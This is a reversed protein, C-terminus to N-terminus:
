KKLGQSHMLWKVWGCLNHEVNYPYKLYGKLEKDELLNMQNREDNFLDLRAFKAYTGEVIPSSIRIKIDKVRGERKLISMEKWTKSLHYVDNWGLHAYSIMTLQEFSHNRKLFPFIKRCLEPASIMLWEVIGSRGQHRMMQSNSWQGSKMLGGKVKGKKNLVKLLNDEIKNHISFGGLEVYKDPRFLHTLIVMQYFIDLDDTIGVKAIADRREKGDPDADFTVPDLVKTKIVEDTVLDQKGNEWNWKEKTFFKFSTLPDQGELDIKLHHQTSM